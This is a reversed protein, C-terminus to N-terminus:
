QYITVVTTVYNSTFYLYLAVGVLFDFSAIWLSFTWAHRIIYKSLNKVIVLEILGYRRSIQSTRELRSTQKKEKHLLHTKQVIKSKEQTQYDVWEICTLVQLLINNWNLFSSSDRLFCILSKTRRSYVSCKHARFPSLCAFGGRGSYGMPQINKSGYRFEILKGKRTDMNPSLDM